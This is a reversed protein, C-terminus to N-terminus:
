TRSSSLITKQQCVVLSNFMLIGVCVCVCALVACVCCMRTISFPLLYPKRNPDNLKRFFLYWNLIWAKRNWVLFYYLYIENWEGRCGGGWRRRAAGLHNIWGFLKHLQPYFKEFLEFNVYPIIKNIKSIIFDNLHPPIAFPLIQVSPSLALSFYSFLCFKM